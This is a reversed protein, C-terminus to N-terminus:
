NFARRGSGVEAPALWASVGLAILGGVVTAWAVKAVTSMGGPEKEAPATAPAAPAPVTTQGLGILSDEGQPGMVNIDEVPPAEYAMGGWAKSPTVTYRDFKSTKGWPMAVEYKLQGLERPSIFQNGM